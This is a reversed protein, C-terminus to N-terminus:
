WGGRYFSVILPGKSLAAASSFDNGNGDPLTFAPAQDGKRLADRAVGAVRLGEVQAIMMNRVAEPVKQAFEEEMRAIKEQLIM